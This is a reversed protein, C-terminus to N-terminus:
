AEELEYNNFIRNWNWLGASAIFGFIVYEIGVLYVGKMFYIVAATIDTIIWLIWNERKKISLLVQATISMVAVFSDAYPFSSPEPFIVPFIRHIGSISYGAAASATLTIIFLLLFSFGSMASIKLENCRDTEMATKPNSWRWWGYISTIFYYIQLFMDPYLRVQYFLIFFFISNIIGLPWAIVAGKACYVVCLFGSLTGILEIFSVPYGAFTLIIYDIRFFEM